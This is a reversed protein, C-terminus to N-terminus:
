IQRYGREEAALRRCKLRIIKLPRAPPRPLVTAEWAKFAKRLEAFVEPRQERFDAQERQDVSLNM